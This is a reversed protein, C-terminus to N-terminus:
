SSVGPKAPVAGAQRKRLAVVLGGLLANLANAAPIDHMDIWSRGKDIQRHMVDDGQVRFDALGKLWKKDTGTWKLNSVVHAFGGVGFGPPVHDMIARLLASCAFPMDNAFALNLERLLEVLKVTSLAPTDLAELEAILAEKAYV